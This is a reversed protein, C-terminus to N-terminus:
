AMRRELMAVVMRLQENSVGLVSDCAHCMLESSIRMQHMTRKMRNGCDVCQLTLVASSFREEM